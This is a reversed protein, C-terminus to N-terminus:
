LYHQTTATETVSLRMICSALSNYFRPIYNKECCSPLSTLPGLFNSQCLDHLFSWIFIPAAQKLYFFVSKKPLAAKTVSFFFQMNLLEKVCTTLHIIFNTKKKDSDGPNLLFVKCMTYIIKLLLYVYKFCKKGQFHPFAFFQQNLM